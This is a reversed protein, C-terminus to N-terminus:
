WGETAADSEDGFLGGMVCHRSAVVSGLALSGVTDGEELVLTDPALSVTLSKAECHVREVIIVHDGTLTQEGDLAEDEAEDQSYCHGCEM